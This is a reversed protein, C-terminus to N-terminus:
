SNFVRFFHNLDNFFLISMSSATAQIKCAEILNYMLLFSESITSGCTVVGHNRLIMIRNNGLDEVLKKQLNEDIFIGDYEHHSFAGITHSTQSIPIFESCSVASAHFQHCHFVSHIDSRNGHIASHIVYGAGNISLGTTGPHIIKGNLDVKVLSSATIENYLLGFPNILFHNTNPIRATLHGYITDDWGFKNFLRYCAALQIRTSKEENSFDSLISESLKKDM